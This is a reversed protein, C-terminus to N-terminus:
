DWQLYEQMKSNQKQKTKNKTDIKTAQINTQLSTFQMKFNLNALLPKNPLAKNYFKFQAYCDTFIPALFHIIPSCHLHTPNSMDLNKIQKYM